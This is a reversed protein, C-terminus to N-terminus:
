LTLGFSLLKAQQVSVADARELLRAIIKERVERSLHSLLFLQSVYASGPVLSFHVIESLNGALYKESLASAKFDSKEGRRALLARHLRELYLVADEHDREVRRATGSLGCSIMVVTPAHERGAAPQIIDPDLYEGGIRFHVSLQKGNDLDSGFSPRLRKTYHAILQPLANESLEALFPLDFPARQSSGYVTGMEADLLPAVKLFNLEM